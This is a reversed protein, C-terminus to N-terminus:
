DERFGLFVPHRPRDKTGHKQYKFKVTKGMLQKLKDPRWFGRRQMETFGTGCSVEVGGPMRLLMAGLMGMPVMGAKHSSRRMKGLADREAINSNHMLEEFGIIVGEADQPRKVKLLWGERVTSRGFKYPGQPDRIMVGEFGKALCKVEYELLEDENECLIHPVIQIDLDPNSLEVAHLLIELRQNFPKSLTYNDFVKWIVQPYGDRSMVSSTTKQFNGDILEGDLGKFLSKSWRTRLFKNPIPKLRRSVLQGDVNLARIGDFKPSALVPWRQRKPDWDKALMPKM